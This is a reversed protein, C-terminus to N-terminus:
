RLTSLAPEVIMMTGHPALLSLCETVLGARADIPDKVDVHIENLCNALIIFDFPEKTRVQEFWGHRELDGEYIQLNVEEAGALQCYRGWLQRTQKLAAASGDVATVSLAHPLERQYWWDLVALAGTGPGSGLDLVSFHQGAESTPMEDLLVQIKALNVPLFYQLYAAAFLQDDLYTQSLSGREKTFRRSLEAVVQALKEKSLGEREVLEHIVRLLIPSVTNNLRGM